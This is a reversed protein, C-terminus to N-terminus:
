APETRDIWRTGDVLEHIRRWRRGHEDTFIDRDLEPVSSAAPVEPEGPPVALPSGSADEAGIGIEETEEFRSGRKYSM